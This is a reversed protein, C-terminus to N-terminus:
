CAFWQLRDGEGANDDVGNDEEEEEEEQQEMDYWQAISWIRSAHVVRAYSHCILLQHSSLHHKLTQDSAAPYYPM